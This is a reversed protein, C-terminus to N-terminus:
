GRHRPPPDPRRPDLGDPRTQGSATFTAAKVAIDAGDAGPGISASGDVICGLACAIPDMTAADGCSGGYGSEAAMAGHACDAPVARAVTGAAVALVLLGLAAAVRWGVTLAHSGSM